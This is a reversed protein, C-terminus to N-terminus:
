KNSVDGACLDLYYFDKMKGEKKGEKKQDGKSRSV